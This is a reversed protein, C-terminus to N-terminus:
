YLTKVMYIHDIYENHFYVGKELRGYEVFGLKKYLDLAIGNTSYVGLTLLKYKKLANVEDLLTQFFVKGIGDNRYNKRITLGCKAIHLSRKKGDKDKTADCVGILRDNHLALLMIKDGAQVDKLWNVLYKQERIKNLQEGSFTIFTDEKSLENIYDVLSNLDRMSPYRIIIEKGSKSKITSVLKGENRM